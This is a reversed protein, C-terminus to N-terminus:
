SVLRSASVRREWISGDEVTLQNGLSVSPIDYLSHRRQLELSPSPPTHPASDATELSSTSMDVPLSSHRHKHTSPTHPHTHIRTYTHTHTHIHTYTHSHAHIHTYTHTHTHTHTYTHTHTHVHTYTHTYPSLWTKVCICVYNFMLHLSHTFAGGGELYQEYIVVATTHQTVHRRIDRGM